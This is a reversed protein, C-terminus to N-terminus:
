YPCPRNSCSDGIDIGAILLVAGEPNQVKISYRAQSVFLKHGPSLFIPAANVALEGGPDTDNYYKVVGTYQSQDTIGSHFVVVPGGSVVYYTMTGEFVKDAATDPIAIPQTSDIKRVHVFLQLADNKQKLAVLNDWLDKIPWNLPTEHDRDGLDVSIVQPEAVPEEEQAFSFSGAEIPHRDRPGADLSGTQTPDSSLRNLFGFLDAMEFIPKGDPGKRAGFDGTPQWTPASRLFSLRDGWLLGILVEAVIRGGVPGLRTGKNLIEAEKLIYYWLPTADGFADKLSDDLKDPADDTKDFSARDLILRDPVGMARAVDQGSPLGLAIGRALNRAPLLNAVTRNKDVFRKLNRLREVRKKGHEVVGAALVAEVDLKLPIVLAPDTDKVPGGPILSLQFNLNTDISRSPQVKEPDGGEVPFFFSWDITLKEDRERFGALTLKKPDDSFILIEKDEGDTEKNLAYDKRVMSHGFRYAAVAFEVPMFPMDDWVFFRLNPKYVVAPEREEDPISHRHIDQLVPVEFEQRGLVDELVTQGVLKPLFDHIILWQYHWRVTQQCSEFLHDTPAGKALCDEVVANHFRIFALHLQSVITNEDNRPDGILARRPRRAGDDAERPLEWEIEGNKKRKRKVIRLRLGDPEYLYPADQPGAGYLSDLDLRPTRFNTLADPDNRRQLRSTPDFTVDHDIFQGFYTYGSPIGANNFKDGEENTNEDEFMSCALELLDLEDAELPPLTRFMRGFFGKRLSSHPVDELGRPPEVGHYRGATDAPITTARETM